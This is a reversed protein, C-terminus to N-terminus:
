LVSCELTWDLFWSPVLAVFLPASPISPIRVPPSRPRPPPPPPRPRPAAPQGRRKPRERATGVGNKAASTATKGAEHAASSKAAAARDEVLTGAARDESPEDDQALTATSATGASNKTTGDEQLAATGDEGAGDEEVAAAASASGEAADEQVLPAGTASSPAAESEASEDIDDNLLKEGDGRGAAEGVGARALRRMLAAAVWRLLRRGGAELFEAVRRVIRALALRGPPAPPPLPPLARPARHRRKSRRGRAMDPPKTPLKEAVIRPRPRTSRFLM